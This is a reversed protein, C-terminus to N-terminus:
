SNMKSLVHALAEAEHYKGFATGDFLHITNQRRDYVGCRGGSTKSDDFSPRREKQQDDFGIPRAELTAVDVAWAVIPDFHFYHNQGDNRLLVLEFDFGDETAASVTTIRM